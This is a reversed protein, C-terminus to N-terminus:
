TGKIYAMANAVYGKFVLYSKDSTTTKISPVM